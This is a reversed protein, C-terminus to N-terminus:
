SILHHLLLREEESLKSVDPKDQGYELSNLYLKLVRQENESINKVSAVGYSSSHAAVKEHSDIREFLEELVDNNMGHDDLKVLIDTDWLYFCHDIFLLCSEFSLSNVNRKIFVQSEKHLLKLEDSYITIFSDVAAKPTLNIPREDAKWLYDDVILIGDKKLLDWCLVLDYLVDKTKHSGDIYIIDYSNEELKKLVHQSTERYVTVCQEKGSIRLNDNFITFYKDAFPDIATVRVDQGTLINDLMWLLSRGEHVGIELYSIGNRNKYQSLYQDRTPIFPTFWDTDTFLYEKKIYKTSDIM